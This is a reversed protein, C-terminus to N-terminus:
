NGKSQDNSSQKSYRKPRVFYGLSLIVLGDVTIRIILSNLWNGDKEPIFLFFVLHLMAVVFFTLIYYSRIRKVFLLFAVGLILIPEFILAVILNM